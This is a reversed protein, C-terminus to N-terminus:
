GIENNTIEDPRGKEHWLMKWAYYVLANSSDLLRVRAEGAEYRYDLPNTEALMGHFELVSQKGEFYYGQSNIWTADRSFQSMVTDVDKERMAQERVLIMQKLIRVDDAEAAEV